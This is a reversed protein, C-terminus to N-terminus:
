RRGMDLDLVLHLRDKENAAAPLPVIGFHPAIVVRAIDELLGRIVKDRLREGTQAFDPFANMELLSINVLSSDTKSLLFDLGFVEFSNPLPQFHTPYALAAQFAEATATHIQERISAQIDQSLPLDSLLHVPSTADPGQACTNTLHISQMKRLIDAEEKSNSITDATSEDRDSALEWPPAYPESAFLALMQSFVFVKLAGHAVVYTRIHFKRNSYPAQAILLPSHLYPQALFHRLLSTMIGESTNSPKSVNNHGNIMAHDDTKDNRDAEDDAEDEAEDDSPNEAEWQEFIASLEEETSFIRIGQGRDSMGPKLIWWERENAAKGANREFSARLEFAEVLADDLFEAYDLEFEVAPAFHRTLPSAPHKTCWSAITQSLFHKRILAKRIVYANILASQPAAALAREFDLVEYATYELYRQTSDPTPPLSDVLTFSLPPLVSSLASLILPNVYADEYAVLAQLPRKDQPDAM